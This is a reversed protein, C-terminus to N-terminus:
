EESIFSLGSQTIKGKESLLGDKIAQKKIKTIYGKTIGLADCISDYAAEEDLMRLVERKTEKKVNGWTWVLKGAENQRLQFEADALLVLDQIRVRTKAFHVIFRAGDEPTYDFPRKLMISTDINDEHASTGRQGGTKGIHHLLITSIGAFRLDLLWANIPDWDRKVNEDIGSALSALNDVIWLKIGRTILVRKMNSRWVESSLNARSLGLQNAYADSYIYLPSKRDVELNLDLLRERIDQLPMEGDLFLCPASTEVQWPGFSEGRTVADLISLALWTKGTGRWGNIFTISQETLWPSLFRKKSPIELDSFDKADIIIDEIAHARKPPKYQPAEQIM